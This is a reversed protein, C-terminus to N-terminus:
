NIPEVKLKDMECKDPLLNSVTSGFDYEDDGYVFIDDVKYVLVLSGTVRYRGPVEPIYDDLLSMVDEIVRNGDAVILRDYEGSEWDGDPGDGYAWMQDDRETTSEFDWEGSEDVVVIDDLYPEVYEISSIEDPEPIPRGSMDYGPDHWWNPRDIGANIVKKM